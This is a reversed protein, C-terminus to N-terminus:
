RRLELRVKFWRKNISEISVLFRFFTQIRNSFESENFNLNSIKLWFLCLYFASSSRM